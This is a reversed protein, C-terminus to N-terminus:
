EREGIKERGHLLNQRFLNKGMTEYMAMDVFVLVMSMDVSMNMIVIMVMVM